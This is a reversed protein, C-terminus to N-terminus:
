SATKSSSEAKKGSDGDDGDGEPAGDMIIEVLTGVAEAVLIDRTGESAGKLEDMMASHVETPTTNGGAFNVMVAYCRALKRFKPHVGMQSLESLTVIEEIQEGLSFIDREAIAFDEGDWHIQISKMM